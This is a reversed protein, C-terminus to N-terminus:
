GRPLGLNRAIIDRHMESTGGGITRCLTHLQYYPVKGGLHKKNGKSGLMLQGYLGLVEMGIKGATQVLQGGPLKAVSIEIRPVIDKYQLWANRYCFWKVIEIDIALQAIKARIHPDDALLKGNRKTVKAYKVYEDLMRKSSAAREVGGRETVLLGNVVAWGNGEGGILCMEPVRVNDYFVEAFIEERYCNRLMAITIGPTNMDVLFMSLGKHRPKDNTRVLLATYQAHHADTQWTKQGNIVWENGDKVAKTQLAALDSGANPESLGLGCFDIMNGTVLPLYHKKQEENGFKRILPEAFNSLSFGPAGWYAAEETMILFEIMNLKGGPAWDREALLKAFKRRTPWYQEPFDFLFGHGEWDDPLNTLIFERVEKRFAEEQETFGFNM